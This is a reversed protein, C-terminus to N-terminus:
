MTGYQKTKLCPPLQEIFSLPNVEVAIFEDENM